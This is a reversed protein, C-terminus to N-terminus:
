PLSLVRRNYHGWQFGCHPLKRALHRMQSEGGTGSEMSWWRGVGWVQRRCRLKVVFDASGRTQPTLKAIPDKRVLNLQWHVHYCNSFLPTQGCSSDETGRTSEWSELGVGQEWKKEGPMWPLFLHGRPPWLDSHKKSHAPEYKQQKITHLGLGTSLTQSMSIVSCFFWLEVGKSGLVTDISYRSHAM